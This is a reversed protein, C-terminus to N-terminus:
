KLVDHQVSKLMGMLNPLSRCPRRGKASWISRGSGERGATSPTGKPLRGRQSRRSTVDRADCNDDIICVCTLSVLAQLRSETGQGASQVRCALPSANCYLVILIRDRTKGSILCCKRVRHNKAHRRLSKRSEAVADLLTPVAILCEPTVHM